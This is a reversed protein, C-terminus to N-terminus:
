EHEKPDVRTRGLFLDNAANSFTRPCWTQQRFDKATIAAMMYPALPLRQHVKALHPGDRAALGSQIILHNHFYIRVGPEYPQDPDTVIRGRGRSAVVIEAGIEEMEGLVIYEAYDPPEGLEEIGLGITQKGEQRLLALSKLMGHRCIDRWAALTTSHVVWRPDTPRVCHEEPTETLAREVLTGLEFSEPCSIIVNRKHRWEYRLFDALSSGLGPIDAGLSFTFLGAKGGGCSNITRNVGDIRFCSWEPGYHGDASFPNPASATWNAPAKYYNM